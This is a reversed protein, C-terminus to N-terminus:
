ASWDLTQSKIELLNARQGIQAIDESRTLALEDAFVADAVAHLKRITKHQSPPQRELHRDTGELALSALCRITAPRRGCFVSRM